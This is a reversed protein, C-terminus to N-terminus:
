ALRGKRWAALNGEWAVNGKLKLMKKQNERRLLEHLAYDILNRRTKIGTTKQCREILEDDLVINTRSM